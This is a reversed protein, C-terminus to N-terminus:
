AQNGRMPVQAIHRARLRSCWNPFSLITERPKASKGSNQACRRCGHVPRPNEKLPACETTDARLSRLHAGKVQSGSTFQALM